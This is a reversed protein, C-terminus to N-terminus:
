KVPKSEGCISGPLSLFKAACNFSPALVTLNM